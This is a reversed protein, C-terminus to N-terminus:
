TGPPQDGDADIGPAQPATDAPVVPEGAPLPADPLDADPLDAEPLEADPGAAMTWHQLARGEPRGEREWIAYARLRRQEDQDDHM